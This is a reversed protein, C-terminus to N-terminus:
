PWLIVLLLLPLPPDIPSSNKDIRYIGPISPVAFIYLWSTIIGQSTQRCHESELSHKNTQSHTRHLLFVSQPKDAPFGGQFWQLGLICIIGTNGFLYEDSWCCDTEQLFMNMIHFQWTEPRTPNRSNVAQNTLWHNPDFDHLECHFGPSSPVQVAEQTRQTGDM